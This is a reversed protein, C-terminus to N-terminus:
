LFFGARFGTVKGTSAALVSSFREGVLSLGARFPEDFVENDDYFSLQNQLIPVQTEARAEGFNLFFLSFLGASAGLILVFRFIM